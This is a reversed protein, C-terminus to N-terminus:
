IVCYYLVDIGATHYAVAHPQPIMGPTSMALALFVAMRIGNWIFVTPRKPQWVPLEGSKSIADDMCLLKPPAAPQPSTKAVSVSVGFNRAEEVSYAVLAPSGLRPARVPSSQRPASTSVQARLLAAGSLAGKDHRSLVDILHAPCPQLTLRLIVSHNCGPPLPTSHDM